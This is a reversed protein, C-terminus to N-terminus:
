QLLTSTLRVTTLGGGAVVQYEGANEMEALAELVRAVMERVVRM